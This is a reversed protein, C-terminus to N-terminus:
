KMDQNWMEFGADVRKQLPRLKNEPSITVKLNKKLKFDSVNKEDPGYIVNVHGENVQLDSRGDEGTGILSV